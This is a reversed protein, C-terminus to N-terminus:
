ASHQPVLSSGFPLGSRPGHSMHPIKQDLVASDQVACPIWVLFGVDAHKSPLDAANALAHIRGGGHAHDICLVEGRSRTEEFLVAAIIHAGPYSRLALVLDELPHGGVDDPV